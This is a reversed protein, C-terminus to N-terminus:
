YRELTSLENVNSEREKDTQSHVKKTQKEKETPQDQKQKNIGPM